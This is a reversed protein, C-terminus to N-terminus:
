LVMKVLPNVKLEDHLATLQEIGTATILVTISDFKGKSSSKVKLSKPDFGPAHRDFVDLVLEMLEDGSVGMVKIPYDQCPFEIKPADPQSM